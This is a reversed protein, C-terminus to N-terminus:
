FRYGVSLGYVTPKGRYRVLTDILISVGTVYSENTVNRGFATLRWRDDASSIGARVDLTAYDEMKFDRAPLNANHFTTNQTGQYSVSGGVFATWDSSIPFDYQVDANATFKPTYPLASGRFNGTYGAANYIPVGDPTVSYDSTVKSKLYTAGASLRLGDVPRAVLEAEFGYVYSKPVNLLKELLGFIPDLIRGRVQKDSYDYYFGAANLQIANYALPLKAGAEYAIVKEQTASM